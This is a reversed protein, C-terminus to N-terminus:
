RGGSGETSAHTAPPSACLAPGFLGRGIQLADDLTLRYGYTEPRQEARWADLHADSCFFAIVRCHSTAACGGAYHLGFWTTTTPPDITELATGMGRTVLRVALNCARCRSEIVIDAQCMSGVGLADVACMARLTRGGLRVRHESPQDTFPYAGVIRGRDDDLIVIDRAALQRTTRWVEKLLLGTRKALWPLGPARGLQLYGELVARRVRDERTTYGRWRHELNSAAVQAVIAELARQSRVVSWDPFVVGPQLEVTFRERGRTTDSSEGM